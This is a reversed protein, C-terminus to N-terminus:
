RRRWRPTVPRPATRLPDPRGARRFRDSLIHIM